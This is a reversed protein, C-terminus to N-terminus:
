YSYPIFNVAGYPVEQNITGYVKQGKFVPGYIFQTSYSDSHGSSTQLITQEASGIKLVARSYAKARWNGEATVIGDSPVTYPNSSSYNLLNVYGSMNFDAPHPNLRVYSM